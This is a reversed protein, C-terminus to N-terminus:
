TGLLKLYDDAKAYIGNLIQKNAGLDIIQAHLDSRGTVRTTAPDVDALLLTITAANHFLTMAAQAELASGTATDFASVLRHKNAHLALVLARAVTAYPASFV